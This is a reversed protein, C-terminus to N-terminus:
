GSNRSHLAAIDTRGIQSIGDEMASAVCARDSLRLALPTPGKTVCMREVLRQLKAYIQEAPAEANYRFEAQVTHYGRRKAEASATPTALAGAMVLMVLPAAYVRFASTKAHTTRKNTNM